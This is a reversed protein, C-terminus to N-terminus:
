ALSAPEPPAADVGAFASGFTMEAPIARAPRTLIARIVAPEFKPQRSATLLGCLEQEVDFLQTYCFGQVTPCALVADMLAGLRRLYEEEDWARRPNGETGGDRRRETGVVYDIGGIETLMVPQGSREHDAFTLAHFYPRVSALSREVAEASGYRETITEPELAYDHIGWIDSSFLEWGDNGIVPRTPDLAHTLHYIAEVYHRQEASRALNPVGWSENFPVWAVISPHSADRRVVELWERTFREVATTSFEYANAMEGWVVLGIRDCWALYRPDEAKQHLRLGNLGHLKALEVERRIAEESPAALHSEPWYGQALALRLFYPRGNLYFQDEGFGVSRIGFYSGVRDIADGSADAESLTLEADILNPYEPSWFLARRDVDMNPVAYAIERQTEQAEFAYLDEAFRDGRLRLSVGLKVPRRPTRNLRVTLGIRGRVTDTTWRVDAIYTEAVPELWVPQWIGTTRHYWIEGPELKWYQKGRPQTLDLADDEARVVIVQEREGAVLATTVDASFSSHGGEHEAVLRGNVWVQARYDVAGFNLLWRRNRDGSPLRVERRYWVVRHPANDNIGSAPSEPPFPVVIARQFVDNREAWGEDLGRDADDYAFQWTGCLDMWEARTLQPRPHGEIWDM